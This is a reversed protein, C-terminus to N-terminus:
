VETKGAPLKKRLALWARTRRMLLQARSMKRSTMSILVVAFIKLVSAAFAIAALSFVASNRLVSM